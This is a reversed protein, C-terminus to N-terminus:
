CGQTQLWQLSGDVVGLVHTGTTPAAPIKIKLAIQRKTNGGFGTTTTEEFSEEAFEPTAFVFNQDLDSGKLQYPYGGSSPNQASQALAAFSIPPESTM